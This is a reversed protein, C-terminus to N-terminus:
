IAAPIFFGQDIVAGGVISVTVYLFVSSIIVYILFNVLLQGFSINKVYQQNFTENNQDEFKIKNAM